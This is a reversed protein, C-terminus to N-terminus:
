SAHCEGTDSMESINVAVRGSRAGARGRGVAVGEATLLAEQEAIGLCIVDGPQLELLERATLEPGPLLAEVTVEAQSVLGLDAMGRAAAPRLHALLDDWGVTAFVAHSQDGIRLSLAFQMFPLAPQPCCTGDTWLARAESPPLNLERSAERALETLVMEILGRDVAGLPQDPRLEPFGLLGAVIAEVGSKPVIMQWAPGPAGLQLTWDEGRVAPVEAEHLLHRQAVCSVSHAMLATLAATVARAVAEGTRSALM